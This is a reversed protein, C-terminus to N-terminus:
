SLVSLESKNFVVEGQWGKPTGFRVAIRDLAYVCAVYGTRGKYKGSIVEVKSDESIFCM